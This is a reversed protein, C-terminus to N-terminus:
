DKDVTKYSAGWQKVREDYIPNIGKPPVGPWVTLLEVDENGDSNDLGHLIGGPIFIVDGEKIELLEGDLELKCSGKLIVYTEDCGEGVNGHASAPLLNEGAKLVGHNIHVNKADSNTHDLLMRSVYKPDLSFPKVEVPRVLTGRM